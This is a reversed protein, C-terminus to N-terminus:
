SRRAVGSRHGSHPRQCHRRRFSGCLGGSSRFRGASYKRTTPLPAAGARGSIPMVNNGHLQGHVVECSFPEKSEFALVRFRMSEITRRVFPLFVDVELEVSERRDLQLCNRLLRITM